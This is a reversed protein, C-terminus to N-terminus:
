QFFKDQKNTLNQLIYNCLLIQVDTNQLVHSSSFTVLSRFFVTSLPVNRWAMKKFLFKRDGIQFIKTPTLYDLLYFPTAKITNLM